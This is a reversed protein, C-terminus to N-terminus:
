NQGGNFGLTERLKTKPYILVKPFCLQKTRSCVNLTCYVALVTYFDDFITVMVFYKYLLYKAMLILKTVNREHIYTGFSQMEVDFKTIVCVSFSVLMNLM